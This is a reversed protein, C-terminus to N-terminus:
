ALPIVASISPTDGPVRTIHGKGTLDEVLRADGPNFTHKTGDGLEIEVNGSVSIIYQRRPAPHWDIFHQERFEDLNELVVGSRTSLGALIQQRLEHRRVGNKYGKHPLGFSNIVAGPMSELLVPGTRGSDDLPPVRCGERWLRDLMQMGRFTMPVMNPNFKHLCSYCEPFYLDGRRLPEGHQSCFEDRLALFEQYEMGAAEQWLIPMETAKPVWFEAFQQPVSYPFDLAAVTETPLSALLDALEARPMSRSSHIRLSQGELRGQTVWTANDAKAGSFDVGVIM